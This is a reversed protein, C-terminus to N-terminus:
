EKAPAVAPEVEVSGHGGRRRHWLMLAGAIPLGVVLGAVAAALANLVWELAGSGGALRHATDHIAHPVAELVHLV